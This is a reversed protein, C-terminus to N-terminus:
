EPNLLLEPMDLRGVTLMRRSVEKNGIKTEVVEMSWQINELYYIKGPVCYLSFRPLFEATSVGFTHAGPDVIWLFYGGEYPDGANQGDIFVESGHYVKKYFYIAAEKETAIYNKAKNDIRIPARIILDKDSFLWERNANVKPLNASTPKAVKLQPSTTKSGSSIVSYGNGLTGSDGCLHYAAAVVDDKGFEIVFLHTSYTPMEGWVAFPAPPFLVAYYWTWDTQGGVYVFLRDDLRTALPNGLLSIVTAKISAGPVISSLKEDSFFNNNGHPV